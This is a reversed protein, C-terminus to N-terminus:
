EAFGKVRHVTTPIFDEQAFSYNLVITDEDIVEYNIFLGDISLVYENIVYFAVRSASWVFVNATWLLEDDDKELANWDQESIGHIYGEDDISIDYSDDAVYLEKMACQEAAIDFITYCRYENDLNSWTDALFWSGLLNIGNATFADENKNCSSFSTALVIAAALFLFKKM